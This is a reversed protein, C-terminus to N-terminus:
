SCVGLSELGLGVVRWKSLGELHHAPTSSSIHSTGGSTLTVTRSGHPPAFDGPFRRLRERLRPMEGVIKILNQKLEDLPPEGGLMVLVSVAVNGYPKQGFNYHLADSANLRSDFVFRKIM